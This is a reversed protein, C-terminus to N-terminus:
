GRLEERTYNCTGLAVPAAAVVNYCRCCDPSSCAYDCGTGAPRVTHPHHVKQLVNLETRFDGMAAANFDKLVKVAVVTGCWRARYVEGFEGEGAGPRACKQDPRLRRCVLALRCCGQFVHESQGAVHEAQMLSKTGAWDASEAGM